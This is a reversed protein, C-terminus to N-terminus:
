SQLVCVRGSADIFEISRVKYPELRQMAIETCGLVDWESPDFLSYEFSPRDTSPGDPIQPDYDYEDRDFFSPDPDLGEDDSEYLHQVAWMPEQVNDEIFALLM